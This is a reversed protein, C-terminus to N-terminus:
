CNVKLTGRGQRTKHSLTPIKVKERCGRPNDVPAPDFGPQWAATKSTPHEVSNVTAKEVM